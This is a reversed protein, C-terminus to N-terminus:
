RGEPPCYPEGNIGVTGGLEITMFNRWGASTLRWSERHEQTTLVTDLTVGDPRFMMREWIQSTFVVASDRDVTLSGIAVSIALTRDIISWDRLVDARLEDRTVIAGSEDRVQSEVPILAMYTDIDQERTAEVGLQIEVNIAHRVPEAASQSCAALPTVAMLVAANLMRPRFRLHLLAAMWIM